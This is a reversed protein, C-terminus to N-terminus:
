DEALGSASRSYRRATPDQFWRPAQTAATEYQYALVGFERMDGPAMRSNRLFTEFVPAAGALDESLRDRM